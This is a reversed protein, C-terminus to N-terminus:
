DDDHRSRRRQEKEKLARAAAADARRLKQRLERRRQREAQGRRWRLLLRDLRPGISALLSHNQKPMRAGTAFALALALATIAVRVAEKVLQWVLQPNVGSTQNYLRAEVTPLAALFRQRLVPLPERIQIPPANGGAGQLARLRQQLEAASSAELVASRLQKIRLEVTQRTQLAKTNASALGQWLALGQVPVLLLFGLVVPVAWAQLRSALRAALAHNPAVWSALPMLLFGLLAMPGNNVLAGVMRLHWAPSLIELPLAAAIINAVYVALLALSAAALLSAIGEASLGTRGSGSRAM